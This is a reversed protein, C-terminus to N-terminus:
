LPRNRALTCLILDCSTSSFYTGTVLTRYKSPPHLFRVANDHRCRGTGVWCESCICQRRCGKKSGVYCGCVSQVLGSVPVLNDSKTKTQRHSIAISCVPNHFKWTLFSSASLRCLLEGRRWLHPGPIFTSHSNSCPPGKSARHVRLWSTFPSCWSFWFQASARRQWLGRQM